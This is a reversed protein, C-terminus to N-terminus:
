VVFTDNYLLSCIVCRTLYNVRVQNQIMRFGATGSRREVKLRREMEEEEEKVKVKLGKRERVGVAADCVADCM